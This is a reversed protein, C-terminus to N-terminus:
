GRGPCIRGALFRCLNIGILPYLKMIELFQAGSIVLLTSDQVARCTFGAKEDTFLEREGFFGEGAIEVKAGGDEPELDLAGRSVLYLGELTDGPRIVIQGRACDAETTVSGIARLERIGLGSFVPFRRLIDIREIFSPMNAEKALCRQLCWRAALRVDPDPDDQVAQAHPIFQAAPRDAAIFALACIRVTPGVGPGKERTLHALTREVGDLRPLFLARRGRAIKEAAPVTDLLPIIAEALRLSLSSELMEVATSTDSRAVSEFVLRMDAHRVWLASFLLSLEAHHKELLAQRLRSLAPTEPLGALVEIAMIMCYASTLRAACCSELDFDKWGALRLVELAGEQIRATGGIIAQELGPLIEPGYRALADVAARRPTEADNLLGILKNIAAYDRSLAFSSAAHARRQGDPHSLDALAEDVPIHRIDMREMLDLLGEPYEEPCMAGPQAGPPDARGSAVEAMRDHDLMDEVLVQKLGATYHRRFLLAERVWFVALALAVIATEHPTLLPKLALLLVAGLVSGLQTVVGRVFTQASDAIDRPLLSFLVKSTPGQVTRQLLITSFQAYGAAPLTFSLALWLFSFLQNVPALLAAMRTSLRAYVAGLGLILLFSSLSTGARFLSLFELLEAESAFSANVVVGFEYTLFPLTMTSLAAGTCLYRFIPRRRFADLMASLSGAGDKGVQGNSATAAIPADERRRLLCMALLLNAVACVILIADLGLLRAVLGSALSGLTAGLVQAGVPLRFLRKGQRANFAAQAINWLYVLLAADQITLLLYLLPYAATLGAGVALRLGIQLLGLAALFVSLGVSPAFRASLGRGLHFFLAALLGSLVLMLPLQEPGFRKLFSTEVHNRFLALLFFAAFFLLCLRMTEPLETPYVGLLRRVLDRLRRASETPNSKAMDRMTDSARLEILM